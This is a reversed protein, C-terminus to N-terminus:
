SYPPVMAESRTEFARSFILTWPGKNKTWKNRNTNHRLIRDPLNNTQGIYLVGSSTSQIIYTHFMPFSNISIFFAM